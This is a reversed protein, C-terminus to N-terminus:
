TNGLPIRPSSSSAETLSQDIAKNQFPTLHQGLSGLISYTGWGWGHIPGPCGPRTPAVLGPCSSPSPIQLAGELGLWQIIFCKGRHMAQLSILQTEIVPVTFTTPIHLPVLSLPVPCCLASILWYTTTWPVQASSCLPLLAVHQRMVSILFLHLCQSPSLLMIGQLHEKTEVAIGSAPGVQLIGWEEESARLVLIEDGGWWLARWTPDPPLWSAGSGATHAQIAVASCWFFPFSSLLSSHSLIQSLLSILPSCPFFCFPSPLRSASLVSSEQKGAQRNPTHSSSYHATTHFHQPKICLQLAFM